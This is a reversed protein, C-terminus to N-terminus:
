YLVVMKASASFEPTLMKVFYIGPAVGETNLNVSYSGANHTGSALTAVMKGAVDYVRLTVDTTKGVSFNVTTGVVDLSFTEVIRTEAVGEFYNFTKSADDGILADKQTAWFTIIYPGETLPPDPEPFPPSKTEDPEFVEPGISDLYVVAHLAADEIKCRLWIDDAGTGEEGLMETFNARPAFPGIQDDAPALIETADVQTGAFTVFNKDKANNTPNVDDDHELWFLASYKKNAEPTFDEFGNVVNYGLEFPVHNLVDLYVTERTEFDRFRCGVKATATDLNNLVRCAPTFPVGGEEEDAPRIIQVIELDLEETPGGGCGYMKVNDVYWWNLNWSYGDGRFNIAVQSEGAAWFSIDLSDRTFPYSGYDSGYYDWIVNPFTSGGDTSGLWQATYTGTFHDYYHDVALYVAGYSSCDIVPSILDDVGTESPSWYLRACYDGARYYRHWDSNGVSGSYNITWGAPPSTTSWSGEFDEELVLECEPPEGGTGGWVDVKDVEYWFAWGSGGDEDYRFRVQANAVDAAQASIDVSDRAGSTYGTVSVEKIQVWASGNFVDVYAHETGEYDEWTYNFALWVTPYGSADFAPSQLSNNRIYVYGWYDDDNCACNGGGGTYNSLGTYTNAYWQNSGGEVVRTWGSPPFSGEFDQHLLNTQASLNPILVGCVLVAVALAIVKKSM